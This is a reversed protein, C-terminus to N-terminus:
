LVGQAKLWKIFDQVQKRLEERSVARAEAHIAEWGPSPKDKQHIRKYADSYGTAPDYFVAYSGAPKATAFSDKLVGATGITNIEQVTAVPGGKTWENFDAESVFEYAINRKADVGDLALRGLQTSPGREEPKHLFANPDTVPVPFDRLIVADDAFTIGAKKAEENIVQRAEDESLFIPPNVAVCGMAGRGEGHQFVPAVQFAGPKAKRAAESQGASGVLCAMALASIVVANGRWRKPVLKLLEPHEDLVERTPFRPTTYREVPTIRVM